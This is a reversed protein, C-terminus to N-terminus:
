PSIPKSQKPIPHSAPFKMFAISISFYVPASSTTLQLGIQIMVVIHETTRRIANANNKLSSTLAASAGGVSLDYISNKRLIMIIGVPGAM